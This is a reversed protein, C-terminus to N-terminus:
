EKKVLTAQTAHDLRFYWDAQENAVSLPVLISGDPLTVKMGEIFPTMSPADIVQVTAVTRLPRIARGALSNVLM